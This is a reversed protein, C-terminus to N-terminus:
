DGDNDTNTIIVSLASRADVTLLIGLETLKTHLTEVATPNTTVAEELPVAIATIAEQVEDIKSQIDNNLSNEQLVFFIYDSITTIGEGFFSEEVMEMSVELLQLSINSFPAQVIEPNPIASTEFGGPKGIKTVKGTDVANNLGNFFLNFSARIGTDENNIFTTAYDDGDSQWISLLREAQGVLFEVSLRLYERRNEDAVFENNTEAVTSKFLLYEIGALAKIQPSIAAVSEETIEGDSIFEEIADAVTPWNYIARHLFRDRASGIHFVYTKEYSLTTVVWQNRLAELNTESTESLYTSALNDFAKAQDNFDSLTPLILTNTADTLLTPVDFEEVIVDDVADDVADDTTDDTTSEDSGSCALILLTLFLIRVSKFKKMTM